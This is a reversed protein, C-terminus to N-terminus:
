VSVMAVMGGVGVSGVRIGGGGEVDLQARTGVVEDVIHVLAGQFGLQLGAGFARKCGGVEDEGMAACRQLEGLMSSLAICGGPPHTGSDDLAIDSEGVVLLQDAAVGLTIQM